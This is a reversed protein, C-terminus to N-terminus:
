FLSWESCWPTRAIINLHIKRMFKLRLGTHVGTQGIPLRSTKVLLVIERWYWSNFWCKEITWDTAQDIYLSLIKGTRNEFDLNSSSFLFCFIKVRLQVIGRPKDIPGSMKHRTVRWCKLMRIATEIWVYLFTYWNVRVSCGDDSLLSTQLVSCLQPDESLFNSCTVM